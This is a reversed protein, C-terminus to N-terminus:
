QWAPLANGNFLQQTAETVETSHLAAILQQIKPSNIMDYRVVIVNAYPESKNGIFINNHPFLGAAVAYNANIAAVTMNKLADPLEAPGIKKIIINRPNTAIDELTLYAGSKPKLTIVGASSLLQLAREGNSPDSPIGVTDGSKLNNLNNIKLSYLGMPFIFTKAVAVLNDYHKNKIEDNLFPLHQFVNADIKGTFLAHNPQSYDKFTVIKIDLGFNKMAYDKAVLLIQTESGDIAGVKLVNKSHDGCATLTLLCIIIMSIIKLIRM